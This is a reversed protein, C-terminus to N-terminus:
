SPHHQVVADLVGLTLEAAGFPADSPPEAGMRVAVVGETPIVAVVQDFLGLAWFTDAAQGPLFQGDAISGDGPGRTAILASAIPGRQNLWWLWGYAANLRTSSQRTAQAAYDASVIQTGDWEGFHLMLYGFRALDACTTQMGAYVLANGTADTTLHTHTMGIPEFLVREAYTVPSEGTAVELVAELVQIASNNYAWIEGPAADQGLAVAFATKDEATFAMQVYDTDADWHRGSANSLIDRITVTESATGVWEPVYESVRDDITLLGQDQAIGILTSTVSKTVSWAERPEDAAPAGWNREDVLHGDRTVVMCTSGAAEADAALRDLAAADLGADAPAVRPWAPVPFAVTAAPSTAPPPTAPQTSTPSGAGEATSVAPRTPPSTAATTTSAPAATAVTAPSATVVGPASTDPTGDDGSCAATGIALLGLALAAAPRWRSGRQVQV